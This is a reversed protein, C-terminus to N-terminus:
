KGHNRHYRELKEGAKRAAVAEEFTSFVGLLVKTGEVGIRAKWNCGHREVGPYGTINTVYKSKNKMNTHHDTERLNSIANNTRNHDIHDILKEPMYGHTYLWALRHAPYTSGLFNITVYHEKNQNQTTTGVIHGVKSSANYRQKCTFVGTLPDFHLFRKLLDQSLPEADLSGQVFLNTFVLSSTGDLTLVPSEPYTGTVYLVALRLASYNVGQIKVSTTADFTAANARSKTRSMVGTIPDYTIHKFLEEQTM